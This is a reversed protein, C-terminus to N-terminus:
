STWGRLDYAGSGHRVVTLSEEWRGAEPRSHAQSHERIKEALPGPLPLQGAAYRFRMGGDAPAHLLVEVNDGGAYIPALIGFGDPHDFPSSDETPL